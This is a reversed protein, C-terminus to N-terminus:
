LAIDCLFGTLFKLICILNRSPNIFFLSMPLYYEPVLLWVLDFSIM